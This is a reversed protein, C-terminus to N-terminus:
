GGLRELTVTRRAFEKVDKGASRRTTQNQEDLAIPQEEAVDSYLHKGKELRAVLDAAM